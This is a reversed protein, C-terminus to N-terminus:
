LTKDEKFVDMEWSEGQMYIYVPHLMLEAVLM